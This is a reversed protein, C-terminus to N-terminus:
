MGLTRQAYQYNVGNALTVKFTVCKTMAAITVGAPLMKSNCAEAYDLAHVQAYFLPGVAVRRITDYAHWYADGRWDTGRLTTFRM